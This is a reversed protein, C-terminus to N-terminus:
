VRAMLQGSPSYDIKWDAYVGFVGDATCRLSVSVSVWRVEGDERLAFGVAVDFREGGCLCAADGLDADEAVDAADLMVWRDGCLHCTRDAYGAEDDVRM